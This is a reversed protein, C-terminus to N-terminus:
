NRVGAPSGQPAEPIEAEIGQAFWFRKATKTKRLKVEHFEQVLEPYLKPCLGLSRFGFVRLTKPEADKREEGSNRTVDFKGIDFPFPIILDLVATGFNPVARM